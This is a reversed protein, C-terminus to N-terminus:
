KSLTHVNHGTENCQRCQMQFPMGGKTCVQKKAKKGNSHAGFESLSTLRQGDEVTLTGERQIHKRKHLKRQMAAKNAVQLEAVQDRM